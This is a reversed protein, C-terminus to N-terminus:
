GVNICVRFFIDFNEPTPGHGSFSSKKTVRSKPVKEVSRRFDGVGFGHRLNVPWCGCVFESSVSGFVYLRYFILHKNICQCVSECVDIFYVIWVMYTFQTWLHIMLLNIRINIGPYLYLNYITYLLSKWIGMYM